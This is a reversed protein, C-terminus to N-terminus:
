KLDGWSTGHSTHVLLPVESSYALYSESLANEMRPIVEQIFSEVDKKAVEYIIEDHIQLVLSADMQKAEKLYEDVSVMALKIMDASTGQIPANLAMREASARIFPLRSNIDKFQRRRGFLTDTYGYQHAHEKTKELFATAEPFKEFFGQHFTQAEQREGGMQKHLSNVGMGYLIGFNVIKAKRRLERDVKDYSVGGIMSAVATHIDRGEKFISILQDDSSLMALVRLEIQSYDFSVLEYGDRAVFGERIKRGIDTRTPINQVNPDKSSFRGTTTGNQIFRPHLRGDAAVLKPLVELYTSLLKDLERYQTILDIIPHVGELKELADVNTSYIGTKASKKIKKTPLALEEFLIQSLQKPSRVNFEVGALEHVKKEIGELENRYEATLKTFFPADLGIGTEQMRYIIDMLPAEIYDFISQLKSERALEEFIVRHADVINKQRTHRFIDELEAEKYDSDILWLAISAERFMKDENKQDEASLATNESKEQTSESNSNQQDLPLNSEQSYESSVVVGTIKQIRDRFGRFEYRDFFDQLAETQLSDKWSNEPIEFEIPSDRRITALIKSFEATEKGEQLLKIIRDTLGAEKAKEVSSELIEYCAELSGFAHLILEAAKEGIGKVGPINDSPDGRLGKYDPIREPGFGFRLRVADEDYLVTDNMGRKLTFVRVRNGEVLQLTDMDGSAIIIDIDTERLQDAITGLIDDAEFGPADYQPIGLYTCLERTADFQMTLADDTKSRTGKYEDYAEHRFTKGPLDYCAVIYDPNFDSVIKFIMSAFGYIAGTPVGERTAFDPLAHYARHIIAHADLLLLLPKESKKQMYLSYVV